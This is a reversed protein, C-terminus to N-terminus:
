QRLFPGIGEVFLSRPPAADSCRLLDLGLFPEPRYHQNKQCTALEPVPQRYGM